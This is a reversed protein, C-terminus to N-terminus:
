QTYELNVLLSKEFQLIGMNDYYINEIKGQICTMFINVLKFTRKKQHVTAMLTNFLSWDLLKFISWFQIVLNSIINRNLSIIKM